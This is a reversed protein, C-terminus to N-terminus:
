SSLGSSTNRDILRGQQAVAKSRTRRSGQHCITRLSPLVKPSPTSTLTLDSPRRQSPDRTPIALSPHPPRLGCLFHCSQNLVLYLIM